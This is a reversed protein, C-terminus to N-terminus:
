SASTLGREKLATRLAPAVQDQIETNAYGVWAVNAETDLPASLPDGHENAVLVGAERAILETCLDYPHCCLGLELGQGRLVAEAVPRLDAVWRDHGLMLEYLQGGTSIYQDEFAQAEGRRVPGLVIEHVRDDIGALEARVGPVFRALGGFGQAITNSRSPTPIFPEREGSFRDLREGNPGGGAVAWLVDCLHQKITPIETQVALEIDALTTGEGRNPAVGTLIWASRKQYMLGRSGDVPDVIVRLEADEPDIGRPLAMGGQSSQGEVILVFSRERALEEFREILMTESVRDIEFVTDGLGESVVRAMTDTANRECAAVVEDRIAAHIERIRGALTHADRIM